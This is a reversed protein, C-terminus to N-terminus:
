KERLETPHEDDVGFGIDFRFRRVYRHGRQPNDEEGAESDRPGHVNVHFREGAPVGGHGPSPPDMYIAFRIIRQHHTQRHLAYVALVCRPLVM